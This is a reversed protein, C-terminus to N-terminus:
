VKNVMNGFVSECERCASILFTIKGQKVLGMSNVGMPAECLSNSCALNNRPTFGLELIESELMPKFTEDNFVSKKMKVRAGMTVM